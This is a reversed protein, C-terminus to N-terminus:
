LENPHLAEGIRVYKMYATYGIEYGEHPHLYKRQSPHLHKQTENFKQDRNKYGEPYEFTAAYPSNDIGEKRNREKFYLTAKIKQKKM